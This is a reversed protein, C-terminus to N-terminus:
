RRMAEPNAVHAPRRGALVDDVSELAQAMMAELMPATYAISHPALVTRPATLLPSDPDVPEHDFVDVGAGGLRGDRLARALAAEDVIGGRAVDVLLAGPRMRAIEAAGLLGTTEPSRPCCVVVADSDRLLADLPVAEAGAARAAEATLRPGYALHRAALGRTLTVVERGIRGLGVIGVTDPLGPGLVDLRAAWDLRRVAGDKEPLAVALALLMAVAGVAVPRTVADPTITVVVGARTCAALDVTDLGVGLRAVVRLDPARELVSATVPNGGLHVIARVGALKDAPVDPLDAPLFRCARGAVAGRGLRVTGDDARLDRTFALM